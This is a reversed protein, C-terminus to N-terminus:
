VAPEATLKAKFLGPTSAENALLPLNRLAEGEPLAVAGKAMAGMDHGSHGGMDMGPMSDMNSMDDMKTQALATSSALTALSAVLFERRHM